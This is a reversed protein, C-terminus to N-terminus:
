SAQLVKGRNQRERRQRKEVANRKEALQYKTHKKETKKTLRERKAMNSM